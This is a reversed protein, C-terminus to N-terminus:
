CIATAVFLQCVAALGSDDLEPLPKLGGCRLDESCCHSTKDSDSKRVLRAKGLFETVGEGLLEQILRQVEQGRVRDEELQEWEAFLVVVLTVVANPLAMMFAPQLVRLLLDLSLVPTQIQPLRSPIEGIAPADRFWLGGASAGAVLVVFPAPALWALRGRWAFGVVVAGVTLVVAHANTASIAEPWERTQGIAGGDAPVGGWLLYARCSLDSPSRCRHLPRGPTYSAYRGFSLVGFAIHVLRALMVATLAEALTTTYEAVIIGMAMAVYINPGPIM